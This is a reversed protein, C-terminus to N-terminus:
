CPLSRIRQSLEEDSPHTYVISGDFEWTDDCNYAGYRGGYLVTRDRITDYCAASFHRPRPDGDDLRKWRLDVALASVCWVSVVWTGALARPWRTRGSWVDHIRM